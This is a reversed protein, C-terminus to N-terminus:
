LYLRSRTCCIIYIICLCAHICRLIEGLMGFESYGVRNQRPMPMRNFHCSPYVSSCVDMVKRDRERVGAQRDTGRVGM